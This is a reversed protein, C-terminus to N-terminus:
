MRFGPMLAKASLRVEDECAELEMAQEFEKVIQERIFSCNILCELIMTMCSYLLFSM